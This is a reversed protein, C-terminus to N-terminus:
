EGNNAMEKKFMKMLYKHNFNNAHVMLQGALKKNDAEIANLVKDESINLETFDTDTGRFGTPNGAKDVIYKMFGDTAMIAIIESFAETKIRITDLYADDWDHNGLIYKNSFIGRLERSETFICM